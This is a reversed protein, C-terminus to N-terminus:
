LNCWPQWTSATDEGANNEEKRKLNNVEEILKQITNIAETLNSAIEYFEINYFYDRKKKLRDLVNTYDEM